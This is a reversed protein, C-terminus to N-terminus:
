VEASHFIDAKNKNPDQVAVSTSGSCTCSQVSPSNGFNLQKLSTLRNSLFCKYNPSVNKNRDCISQGGHAGSGKYNQPSRTTELCKFSNQFVYTVNFIDLINNILQVILM